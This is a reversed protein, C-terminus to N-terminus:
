ARVEGATALWSRAKAVVTRTLLQSEGMYSEPRLAEAIEEGSLVALVEPDTPIVDRLPRQTEYSVQTLRYVHDHANAKGIRDALILMLSESAIQDAVARANAELRDVHVIIGDLVTTLIACGALSFHSVDPVCAWEVRLARSDREHDGVLAGLAAVVQAGALKGMVVVQELREPNRKHPMTSSGVVGYRWAEEMEGFEPRSLTRVEDAIRAFTGAAAALTMCYEVVRDRAPHWAILPAHLGLRQAFRGLLEPGRGQFGAMTGVGGFLEAVLVRPRMAEIREVHRLLEDVWSAVKLGFSIPLAARAHTRGLAVTTAHEEALDTLQEILTRLGAELEDLVDRMELSQATDQIDQTTAGYHVYQGSDGPCADQFVRLLGVLSHRSRLVEERIADLDFAEARAASAIDQVAEAPIMGLDGQAEALAVEVDLWRQVRCVDCFIRRSAPTAYNNGYFHSDSIHGRAHTCDGNEHAVQAGQRGNTTTAM